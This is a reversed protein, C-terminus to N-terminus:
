RAVEAIRLTVNPDIAAKIIDDSPKTQTSKVVKTLEKAKNIGIATLGDPTIYPLLAKATSTYGCLQARQEEGAYKETLSELYKTM